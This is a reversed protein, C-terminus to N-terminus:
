VHVGHHRDVAEEVLARFEETGDADNTGLSVVVVPALSGERQRLVDVGEATTRGVRDHAGIDWRPLEDRLWPATGVNLSDGVLTLAGTADAAAEDEEGTVLLVVAVGVAALVLLSLLPRM